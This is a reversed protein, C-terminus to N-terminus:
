ASYIQFWMITIVPLCSVQAAWEQKFEDLILLAGYKDCLERVRPLYDDPPIIVGGEGQIPELIVAAVEEGIFACSELMMEIADADGFPVHRFGQILPLFPKRFVGKATAGLSGLSKGHFGKTTAIFTTCGSYMRVFKLAGEVSETGSNVFFTYQLDGPTITALLHTLYSFGLCFVGRDKLQAGPM